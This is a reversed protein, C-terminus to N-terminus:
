NHVHVINKQNWEDDQSRFEVRILIVDMWMMVFCLNRLDSIESMCSRNSESLFYVSRRNKEGSMSVIDDREWRSQLKIASLKDISSWSAKMLYKTLDETWLGIFEPRDDKRQSLISLTCTIEELFQFTSGKM